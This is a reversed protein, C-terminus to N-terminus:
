PCPAHAYAHAHHMPMPMPTPMRVEQLRPVVRRPTVLVHGHVLPRLNVFAQTGGSTSDFFVHECPISFRGFQRAAAEVNGIGMLVRYESAEAAMEDHTRDKRESDEPMHWAPAGGSAETEPPQWTEMLSFVEDGRVLDGPLRPVCHAHAPADVWAAHSGERFLINSAVAGVGLESTTQALHVARWLDLWEDDCLTSTHAKGSLPAVVTHGPLIPALDCLAVARRLPSLLLVHSAGILLKGLKLDDGLTPM